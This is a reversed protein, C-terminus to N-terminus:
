KNPISKASLFAIIIFVGFKDSIIEIIENFQAAKYVRIFHYTIHLLDFLVRRAERDIITQALSEDDSDEANHHENEPCVREFEKKYQESIEDTINDFIQVNLSHEM